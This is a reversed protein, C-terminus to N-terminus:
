EGEFDHVLRSAADLQMLTLHGALFACDTRNNSAVASWYREDTLVCYALGTVEGSRVLGALQELEKAIREKEDDIAILV